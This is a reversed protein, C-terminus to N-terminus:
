FYYNTQYFRNYNEIGIFICLNKTPTVYKDKGHRYQQMHSCTYQVIINHGGLSDIYM